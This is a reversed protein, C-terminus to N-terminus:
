VLTVHRNQYETPRNDFTEATQWM